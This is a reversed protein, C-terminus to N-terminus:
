GKRRLCVDLDPRHRGRVRHGGSPPVVSRHRSSSSSISEEGRWKGTCTALLGFEEGALRREERLVGRDAAQDVVPGLERGVLPLAHEGGHELLDDRARGTDGAEGRAFAPAGVQFPSQLSWPYYSLTRLGTKREATRNLTPQRGTSDLVRCWAVYQMADIYEKEGARRGIEEEDVDEVRTMTRVTPSISEALM